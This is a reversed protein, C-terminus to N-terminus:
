ELSEEERGTVLRRWEASTRSAADEWSTRGHPYGGAATGVDVNTGEKVAHRILRVSEERIHGGPERGSLVSGFILRLRGMVSIDPVVTKWIRLLDVARMGSGPAQGYDKRLGDRVALLDGAAELWMQRARGEATWVRDADPDTKFRTWGVADETLSGGLKRRVERCETSGTLFEARAAYGSRYLGGACLSATIIDTYVRSVGYLFRYLDMREPRDKPPLDGLFAAMRNELLRLAEGTAIADPGFSPFRDVLGKGGYLLVGRERIEFVGPSMPMSTLEGATVVGVDIRGVFRANPLLDECAKGIISRRAYFRDYSALTSVVLVLDIDSLFVPNGSLMVISGEYSAFSGSLILGEVNGAGAEEVILDRCREIFGPFVGTYWAELASDRCRRKLSFFGRTSDCPSVDERSEGQM